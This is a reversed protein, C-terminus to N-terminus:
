SQGARPEDSGPHPPRARRTRRLMEGLASAFRTIAKRALFLGGLFGSVLVQVFLTGYSPDIYAHAPKPVALLVAALAGVAAVRSWRTVTRGPRGHCDRWM